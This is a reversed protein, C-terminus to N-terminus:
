GECECFSFFLPTFFLVLSARSAFIFSSLFLCFCSFYEWIYNSSEKL